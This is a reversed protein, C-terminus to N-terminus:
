NIQISITRFAWGMAEIRMPCHVMLHFRSMRGLHDTIRSHATQVWGIGM